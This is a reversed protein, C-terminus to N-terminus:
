WLPFGQLVIKRSGKNTPPDCEVADKQGLVCTSLLTGDEKQGVAVGHFGEGDKECEEEGSTDRLYQWGLNRRATKLDM